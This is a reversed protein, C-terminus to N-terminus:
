GTLQLVNYIIFLVLFVAIGIQLWNPSGDAKLFVENFSKIKVM